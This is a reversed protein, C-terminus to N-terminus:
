RVVEVQPDGHETGGVLRVHEGIEAAHDPGGVVHALVRPGDALDVYALTYASDRDGSAVGPVVAPRPDSGPRGPVTVEATASGAWTWISM